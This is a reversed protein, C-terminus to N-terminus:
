FKCDFLYELLQQSEEFKMFPGMTMDIILGELKNYKSIEVISGMCGDAGTRISSEKDNISLRYKASDVGIEMAQIKQFEYAKGSKFVELLEKNPAFTAQFVNEGHENETLSLHGEWSRKGRFNKVYVLDARGARVYNDDGIFISTPM